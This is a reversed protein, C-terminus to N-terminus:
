REVFHVIQSQCSEYRRNLQSSNRILIFFQPIHQIVEYGIWKQNAYKELLRQLDDKKPNAFDTQYFNKKTSDYDQNNLGRTKILPSKLQLQHAKDTKIKGFSDRKFSKSFLEFLIKNSDFASENQLRSGLEGFSNKSKLFGSGISNPFQSFIRVENDLAEEQKKQMRVASDFCGKKFNLSENKHQHLKATTRYTKNTFASNKQQKKQGVNLILEIKKFPKPNKSSQKHYVMAEIANKKLSYDMDISTKRNHNFSMTIPIQTKKFIPM